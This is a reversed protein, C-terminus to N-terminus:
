NRIEMKVIKTKGDLDFYTKVSPEYRGDKLIYTIVYCNQKEAFCIRDKKFHLVKQKMDNENDIQNDFAPTLVVSSSNYFTYRKGLPSKSSSVLYEAIEDGTYANMVNEDSIILAVDADPEPPKGIDRLRSIFEFEGFKGMFLAIVLIIPTAISILLYIIGWIAWKHQVELFHDLSKWKKNQWAWENARMGIYICGGILTVAGVFPIWCTILILIFIKFVEIFSNNFIAWFWTLSFAGWNFNNIRTDINDQVLVNDEHAALNRNNYLDQENM